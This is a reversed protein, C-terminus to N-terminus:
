DGTSIPLMSVPGQQGSSRDRLRAVAAASISGDAPALVQPATLDRLSAASSALNIATACGFPLLDSRYSRLRGNYDCDVRLRDYRVVQVLGVDSQERISGWGPRGVLRVRAPGPEIARSVSALRQRDLLDSRTWAIHFIVDDEARLGQMRLFRNIRAAEGPALTGTGPVFRIDEQAQMAESILAVQSSAAIPQAACGALALFLVLWATVEVRNM